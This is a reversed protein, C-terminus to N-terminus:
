DFVDQLTCEFVNKDPRMQIFRPHRLSKADKDVQMAQIECVQNIYKNPNKKMDYKMGDTIGSAVRGIPYLQGKDDYVGIAFANPRGFYYDATVLNGDEDKYLWNEPNKGTYEKTPELISMIVADIDDKERKLKFMVKPKRKGPLYLGSETRFVMGEEGDAIMQTTIQDLDLYCNDYCKAVETEQILPTKIDIYECLNSYRRSYNVENLVFDEGNYKLIDHMFFHLKRDKQRAIAKDTLAGMVTTVDKSSGGPFYLEGILVTGNPLVERAWEQLHPVHDIKESYFGTVKSLSRSFMYVENNEKVIQAWYGDKKVTGIIPEDILIEKYDKPAKGVLMPDYVKFDYLNAM